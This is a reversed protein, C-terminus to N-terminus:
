AKGEESPTSLAPVYGLDAMAKQAYARDPDAKMIAPILWEESVLDGAGLQTVAEYAAELLTSARGKETKLEEELVKERESPTPASLTFTSLAERLQDHLWVRVEGGTREAVFVGQLNLASFEENTMVRWPAGLHVSSASLTAKGGTDEPPPPLLERLEAALKACNKKYITMTGGHPATLGLLFCRLEPYDGSQQAPTDTNPTGIARHALEPDRHSLQYLKLAQRFISPPALDKAKSLEELAAMEADTLTLTMTRKAPKPTDTNPTAIRSVEMEYADADFGPYIREAMECPGPEDFDLRLDLDDRRLAMELRVLYQAVELVKEDGEGQASRALAILRLVTPPRLARFYAEWEGFEAGIGFFQVGLPKGDFNCYTAGNVEGQGDCAPCSYWADAEKYGYEGRAPASDIDGPTSVARAVKELEDLDLVDGEQPSPPVPEATM